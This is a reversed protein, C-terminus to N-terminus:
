SQENDYKMLIKDEGSNINSCEMPHIRKCHLLNTSEVLDCSIGFSPLCISLYETGSISNSNRKGYRSIYFGREIRPPVNEMVQSRLFETFKEGSTQIDHRKGFRGGTQFFHDDANIAGPLINLVMWASICITVITQGNM